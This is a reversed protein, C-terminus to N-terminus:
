FIFNRLDFWHNVILSLGDPRLVHYLTFFFALQPSSIMYIVIYKSKASVHRRHEIRSYKKGFCLILVAGHLSSKTQGCTQRWSAAPVSTQRPDEKLDPYVKRLTDRVLHNRIFHRIGCPAGGGPADIKTDDFM